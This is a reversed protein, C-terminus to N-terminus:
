YKLDRVDLASAGGVVVSGKGTASTALAETGLNSCPKVRTLCIFEYHEM